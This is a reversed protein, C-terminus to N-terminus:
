LATVSVSKGILNTGGLNDTVTLIVTYTGAATYRHTPCVEGSGGSGDGFNWEYKVITGDSDTSSGADFRLTQDSLPPVQCWTFEAKPLSNASVPLSFASSSGEGGQDDIVQLSIQFTGVRGYTHQARVGSASGGDGFNWRYGVITGDEDSSSSGDFYVTEGVKATTPSVIFLAKPASNKEVRVEKQQSLTGVEATITTTVRTQLTDVVRGQSDTTRTGGGQLFTGATASLKLQVSPLANGSADYVTAVVEVAGGGAGLSAPNVSLSVSSAASQGIFLDPSDATVTGSRATVKGVGNVNGSIFEVSARGKMLEVSEPVTGLQATLFVTTHDRLALGDSTFGAILITAKDGGTKLTTKSCALVLTSEKEAFFPVDKCSCLFAYSILVFLLSFSLLLPKEIRCTRKVFGHYKISYKTYFGM